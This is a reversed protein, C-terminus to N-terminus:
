PTKKDRAGTAQELAAQVQEQLYTEISGNSRRVADAISGRALPHFARVLLDVEVQVQTGSGAAEIRARLRLRGVRVKRPQMFLYDDTLDPPPEAVEEAGYHEARFDVFVTVIGGEGGEPDLAMEEDELVKLLAERVLAPEEAFEWVVQLPEVEPHPPEEEQGWAPHFALVLLALLTLSRM